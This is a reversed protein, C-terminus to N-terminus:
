EPKGTPQDAAGAPEKGAKAAKRLDSLLREVRRHVNPNQSVVLTDRYTRIVGIGGNFDWSDPAVTSMILEALEEGRTKTADLLDAVPYVVTEVIRSLADPTTVVIVGSRIYYTVKAQALILDLAMGRSINDLDLTIPTEPSIKADELARRDLYFQIKGQTALFEIVDNLPADALVIQMPEELQALTTANLQQELPPVAPLRAPLPAPMPQEQAVAPVVSLMGAALLVWGWRAISGHDPQM